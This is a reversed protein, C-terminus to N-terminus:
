ESRTPPSTHGPEAHADASDQTGTEIKPEAVETPETGALFVEDLTDTDDPYPLKGTAKDITVNVVGAPKPFESPPRREHAAKMFAIWAPLAAAGGTESGQSKGDDYGVWVVSAIDTSYGAFWTDKAANSTGTKGAVPRGLVRARAGTGHDIVSTLLSTTVYAEAEDLVRRPPAKAKLPVDKGDPGVIRTVLTPEEYTGGSAFTAYAGVLEMPTVEYSGLALSLDPKMTSRIGLSEAWPVVNAPGVDRLVRVAVVNVSNALAERLRLPEKATWGEYNSPKYNGEFVETNVDVLTAPTYRRAHIAYSYVVPKFTSGPQRRSQSSRDLGGSVAEYNGVIALVNRTRVDLAVSASEPGMELRLPVHSLANTPSAGSTAAEPVPALLSVRVLAGPEAFASPALKQPNYREYDALKVSGHVKGVRVDLLGAADDAGAVVGVYIKHSEFTPVGEFPPDKPPPAKTKRKPDPPPPAKFPAVLGHRKDFAALNDRVAKRAAAQLRPDITTTVTFGGRKAGEGALEVLMKRALEVAEPALETKAEVLPAIRVPEDNAVAWQADNLFGKARMQELVFTRRALAKKLDKRPSFSEPGAILGALLAGEAITLDKAGKGFNDRAAEEIGYRGHGFFIQNLYLELIEDKTLEAEIRRALLAEKIKRDYSREPGLVVNKVVQQTITSGGQRTRGARLNVIFARVIGVYNLGEHVYFGADEAALVALKVHSPLSEVSVVTRRETFLEALLTGDRALVRTVQPPHYNARLDPTAPLDSEYHRIVFFLSVVAIVAAGFGVAFVRKAWRGVAGTFRRAFSADRAEPAGGDRGTGRSTRRAEREAVDLRETATLTTKM